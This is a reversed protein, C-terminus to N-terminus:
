QTVIHILDANEVRIFGPHGPIFHLEVLDQGYVAPGQGLNGADALVLQEGAVGQEKGGAFPYRGQALAPIHAHGM